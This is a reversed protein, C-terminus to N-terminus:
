MNVFSLNNLQNTNGYNKWLIYLDLFCEAHNIKM